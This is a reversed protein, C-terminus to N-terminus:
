IAHHMIANQLNQVDPNSNLANLTLRCFPCNTAERIAKLSRTSKARDLKECAFFLRIYRHVQSLHCFVAAEPATKPVREVM